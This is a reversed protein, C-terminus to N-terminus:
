FTPAFALCLRAACAFVLVHLSPCQRPHPRLLVALAWCAPMQVAASFSAPVSKRIFSFSSTPAVASPLSYSSSLSSAMFSATLWFRLSIAWFISEAPSSMKLAICAVPNVRASIFSIWAASIAYAHRQKAQGFRPCARIGCIRQARCAQGAQPQRKAAALYIVITLRSSSPSAQKECADGKLKETSRINKELRMHFRDVFFRQTRM